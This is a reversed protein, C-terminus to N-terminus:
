FFLLAITSFPKAVAQAKSYVSGNTPQLPRRLLL